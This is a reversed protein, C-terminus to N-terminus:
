AVVFRIKMSELNRASIICEKSFCSMVGIFLKVPQASGSGRLKNNKQLNGHQAWRTNLWVTDKFHITCHRGRSMDVLLRCLDSDFTLGSYFIITLITLTAKREMREEQALVGLERLALVRALGHLTSHCLPTNWGEDAMFPMCPDSLILFLVEQGPSTGPRQLTTLSSKNETLATGM